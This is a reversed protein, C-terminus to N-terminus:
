VEVRGPAPAAPVRNAAVVDRLYRHRDSILVAGALVLPTSLILFAVALGHGSGTSVVSGSTNIGSGIGVNSAGFAGSVVGFMVPAVGQMVSRLATRVAEARGWLASPMIDFRASDLPPNVGGIAAGAVIFLPLSVALTTTLVGPAFFAPTALFGAAAVMLRASSRGRRILRDAIRGGALVGAISSLAIFVFLVSALSQGVGYRARFFLEAFTELGQLFFYGLGSAVILAVNTRVRLVYFVAKWLGDPPPASVDFHPPPTVGKAEAQEFVM